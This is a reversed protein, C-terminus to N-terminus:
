MEGKIYCLYLGLMTEVPKKELRQQIEKRKNHKLEHALQKIQEKRAAATRQQHRIERWEEASMKSFMPQEEKIKHSEYRCILSVLEEPEYIKNPLIRANKASLELLALGCTEFVVRDKYITRLKELFNIKKFFSLGLGTKEKLFFAFKKWIQDAKKTSYFTYWNGELQNLTKKAELYGLELNTQNRQEDFILFTGLTWNSHCDWYIFESPMTIKKSIGPGQVDVVFAESAGKQIAADVPINNRYGGDVYRVGDIVKYAMAPYFSASAILWDPIKEPDQKKIDTVVESFDPLRTSLTLFEPGSRDKIKKPDIMSRILNELPTTAIGQNKLANKALHQVDYFLQIRAQPDAAAPLEPLSLVQTTSLRRWIKEALAVDDQLILAGNIAGVSTGTIIKISINSEKLAKWVGIQYAGHAGGGGLVLATHYVLPKTLEKKGEYGNESFFSLWGLSLLTEDEFRFCITEKFFYRAFSELLSFFSHQQSFEGDLLLNTIAIKKETLEVTLYLHKKGTSISWARQKKAERWFHDRSEQNSKSFPLVQKSRRLSKYLLPHESWYVKQIKM